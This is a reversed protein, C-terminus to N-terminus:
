DETEPERNNARFTASHEELAEAMVEDGLHDAIRDLRRMSFALIRWDESSVGEYECDRNRNVHLDYYHAALLALEYRTPVFGQVPRAWEDNVGHVGGGITALGGAVIRPGLGASDDDQEDRGEGVIDAVEKADFKVIPRGREDKGFTRMLEGKREGVNDAEWPTVRGRRGVDLVATSM